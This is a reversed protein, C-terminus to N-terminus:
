DRGDGDPQERFTGEEKELADQLTSVLLVQARLAVKAGNRVGFGLATAIKQGGKPVNKLVQGDVDIAEMTAPNYETKAAPLHLSIEVRPYLRRVRNISSLVSNLKEEFAFRIEAGLLAWSAIKFM